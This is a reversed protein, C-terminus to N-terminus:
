GHSQLVSIVFYIWIDRTIRTREKSIKVIHLIDNRSVHGVKIFATKFRYWCRSCCGPNTEIDSEGSSIVSKVETGPDKIM